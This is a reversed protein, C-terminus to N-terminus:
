LRDIQLALLGLFLEDSGETLVAGWFMGDSYWCDMAVLMAVM